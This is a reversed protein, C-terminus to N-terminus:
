KAPTLRLWNISAVGKVYGLRITQKGSLMAVPVGATAWTTQSGTAAYVATQDEIWETTLSLSLERPAAYRVELRYTGDSPVDVMYEVWCKSGFDIDLTGATDSTLRPVVTPSWGEGSAIATASSDSYHEAPINESPAYYTTKDLSSASNYLVGLPTLVPSPRGVWDLLACNGGETGMGTDMFWAYKGVLPDAELYTLIESMFDIHDAPNDSIRGNMDYCFETLWFPKDYKAFKRAFAKVGATNPMYAHGAIADIGDLSVEPRAFFDDLWVVPDSYGAMTGWCMAPSVLRLDAEAAAEVMAPWLAAAQEPTLNAQGALNPENFGLLYEAGAARNNVLHSTQPVGNWGMPAYVMDSQKLIELRSPNYTSGWDYCWSVGFSLLEPMAIQKFNTAVGRKPSKKQKYVDAAAETNLPDFRATPDFVVAPSYKTGEAPKEIQV